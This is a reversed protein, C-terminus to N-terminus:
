CADRQEKRQFLWEEVETRIWGVSRVGIKVQKPFQNQKIYLYLTSRPLGTRSIVEPLRLIKM